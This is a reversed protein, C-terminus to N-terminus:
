LRITRELHLFIEKIADGRIIDYGDRAYGNRAVVLTQLQGYVPGALLKKWRSLQQTQINIGDEVTFETQMNLKHM